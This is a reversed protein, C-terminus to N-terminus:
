VRVEGTRRLRGTREVVVLTPAPGASRGARLPPAEVADSTVLVAAAAGGDGFGVLAVGAGRHRSAGALEDLARASQGAALWGTDAGATTRLRLSAGGRAAAAVISAATSLAAELSPPDFAAERLDVAVDVRLDTAAEDQRIVLEGIRATAPWHVRRLDDGERYLRLAHLEDGAPTPSLGVTSTSRTGSAAPLAGLRETPPHAHLVSAGGVRRTARVLGFPDGLVVELPGVLHRGRPLPGTDYTGRETRGPALPALRLRTGGSGDLGDRLVLTPSRRRGDNRVLLEVRASRGAEVRGPHLERRVALSWRQGAVWAFAGALVVLDAVALTTLEAVGVLGAAVLLVVAAVAFGSGRATLM